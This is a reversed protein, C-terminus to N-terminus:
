QDTAPLPQQDVRPGVSVLVKCNLDLRRQMVTRIDAPSLRGIREIYSNLHDAPQHQQTIAM